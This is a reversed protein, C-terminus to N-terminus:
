PALIAYLCHLVCIAEQIHFTKCFNRPHMGKRATSKLVRSIDSKALYAFYEAEVLRILVLRCSLLIDPMTCSPIRAVDGM